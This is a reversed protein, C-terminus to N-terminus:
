RDRERTLDPEPVCPHSPGKAAAGHKAGAGRPWEQKGEIVFAIADRMARDITLRWRPSTFERYGKGQYRVARARWAGDSARQDVYLAWRRRSLYRSAVANAPPWIERWAGIFFATITDQDPESWARSAVGSVVSTRGEARLENLSFPTGRFSSGHPLATVTM